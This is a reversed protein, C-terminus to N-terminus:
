LEKYSRIAERYAILADTQKSRAEALSAQAQLLDSVPVVGAEYQKEMRSFITQATASNEKSLQWQDYASTLDLWCKGIKLMLQRSLYEQDNRAKQVQTDIRQAKRATKGWDTLPIKVTAYAMTNTRGRDLLKGYGYSAGLGVEPMAEGIAIKKELQKAEVQIELLRSEDMNDLIQAEERWYNEPSLPEESIGCLIINDVFPREVTEAAANYCYPQGIANFLNMKALRLGSAAKRRAAELESRRLQLKLLDTDGALGANVASSLIANLHQVTADLENLMQIKDEISAVSWWFGEVEMSTQKGQLSRKLKAAELGKAALANGNVIRGGAFIPQTVSVAAGYAYQLATYRTKFGYTSAYNDVEYQLNNAFDNNGLIDTIGINLLPNMAHFGFANISATPFYLALTEQKQMWAAKVDLDANKLAANNQFAMERCDDLTLQVQASACVSGLLMLGSIITIRNLAKM